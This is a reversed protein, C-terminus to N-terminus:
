TIFLSGPLAYDIISIPKNQIVGGPASSGPMVWDYASAAAAGGGLLTVPQNVASRIPTITFGPNNGATVQVDTTLSVPLTGPMPSLLPM